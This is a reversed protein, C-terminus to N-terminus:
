FIWSVPNKGSELLTPPSMEEPKFQRFEIDFGGIESGHRWLKHLAQQM